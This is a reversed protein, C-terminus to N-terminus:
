LAARYIKEMDDRSLKKIDGITRTSYFSCKDSLEKIEREFPKIRLDRLSTPMGLEKYFAEFSEITKEGDRYSDGSPSIGFLAYGLSAFREPASSLTYRAWSPWIIALGAGHAIDFMGSLEHELQHTAWDGKSSNGMAMLGNHSLSAAWMLVERAEYDKGDKMARLGYEKVTKLLSLALNDTLPNSFDKVFYREMTHMQIDVISCATEYQPLSYTLEPDLLAFKLRCIDSNCGRKLYSDRDNTIVCSDSMESGAAALTLICGVPLSSTPVAKKSFFDWVDGDYKAGYAIAKSSDIVSGGGIALIFDINKKQVIEIGRRVLSLRPNPQVGELLTYRIGAKDLLSLVLALLGNREIRRSGYHILINKAGERLLEEGVKEEAKKGLTVRTPTYYVTMNEEVEIIFATWRKM